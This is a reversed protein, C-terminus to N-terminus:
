SILGWEDRVVGEWGLLLWILGGGDVVFSMLTGFMGVKMTRYVLAESGYHICSAVYAWTVLAYFQPSSINYAAYLRVLGSLFTWIGFTHISLHTVQSSAAAGQYISRASAFQFFSLASIFFCVLSNFFLFIPLPGPHQPLYFAM